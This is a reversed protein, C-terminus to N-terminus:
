ARRVRGNWILLGYGAITRGVRMRSVSQKLDYRLAFPIEACRAGVTHLKWLLEATCIFGWQRLEFLREGYREVAARITKVRIARYGCAYDRVGPIPLLLRLLVLVGWSYVQRHWPVGHVEAGPQFRSAVVVDNGTAIRQVLADIYVPDHTDDADMTIVIDDDQCHEAVWRMGDHLTQALGANLAHTVVVLPLDHSRRRLIDATGDRSGDDVVLIRYTKGALATSIRDLLQEIRAAENYAPLAVVIASM